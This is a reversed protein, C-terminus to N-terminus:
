EAKKSTAALKISYLIRLTWELLVSFALFRILTQWLTTLESIRDYLLSLSFFTPDVIFVGLIVFPLLKALDVSLEEKYYSTIRVASIVAISIFVIHELTTTKSLLFLFLSFISFWIFVYIPFIIGYKLIYLFVELAKKIRKRGTDYWEYKSLDLKFIDRKALSKYFHWIFIAYITMGITYAILRFYDEGILSYLKNFYYNAQLFDTFNLANM